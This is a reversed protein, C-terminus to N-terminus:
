SFHFLADDDAVKPGVGSGLLERDFGQNFRDEAALRAAGDMEIGAPVFHDAPAVGLKGDGAAVRERQRKGIQPAAVASEDVM